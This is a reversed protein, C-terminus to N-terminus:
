LTIITIRYIITTDYLVPRHLYPVDPPHNKMNFASMNFIFIFCREFCFAHIKMANKDPTSIAPINIDSRFVNCDCNGNSSSAM